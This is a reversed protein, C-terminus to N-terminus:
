DGMFGWWRWGNKMYVFTLWNDKTVRTLKGDVKDHSKTGSKVSEALSKLIENLQRKDLRFYDDLYCLNFLM